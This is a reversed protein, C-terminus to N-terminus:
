TCKLIMFMLHFHCSKPSPRRASPCNVHFAEYLPENRKDNIQDNEDSEDSEDESSESSEDFFTFASSNESNCDSSQDTSDAKDLLFIFVLIFNYTWWMSIKNLILLMGRYSDHVQTMENNELDDASETAELNTDSAIDASM